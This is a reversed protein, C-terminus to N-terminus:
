RLWQKSSQAPLREGRFRLRLMDTCAFAVPHAESVNCFMGELVVGNEQGSAGPENM